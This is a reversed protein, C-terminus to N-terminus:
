SKSTNKSINLTKNTAHLFSHNQFQPLTFVVKFQEREPLNQYFNILIDELRTQLNRMTLIMGQVNLSDFHSGVYLVLSNISVELERYLCEYHGIQSRDILLNSNFNTRDLVNKASAFIQQFTGQLNAQYVSERVSSTARSTGM